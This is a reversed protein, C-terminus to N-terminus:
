ARTLDAPPPRSFLPDRSISPVDPTEPALEVRTFVQIVFIQPAPTGAQIATHAVLCLGCDPHSKGLAKHSHTVSLMGGLLVVSICLLAVLPRLWSRGVRGNASTALEAMIGQIYGLDAVSLIKPGCRCQDLELDACPSRYGSSEVSRV